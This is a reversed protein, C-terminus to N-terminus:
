ILESLFVVYCDSYFVGFWMKILIVIVNIINCNINCIRYYKKNKM